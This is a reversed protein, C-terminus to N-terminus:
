GESVQIALEELAVRVEEYVEVEQGPVEFSVALAYRAEADPDKSWGKHGRVAICFTEPLQHLKLIAWDKQVTGNGRAFDRISGHGDQAGLTWTIGDDNRSKTKENNADEGGAGVISQTQDSEKIARVEFDGMSEGRRNTIWDLWVSLYRKPTRRTRRPEAAYSLTVEVHVDFDNGAARVAAPVPVQLIDCYGAQLSQVGSTILTTRHASNRTARERDPIGFGIRSMVARVQAALSQELADDISQPPVVAGKKKARRKAAAVKDRLNQNKKKERRYDELLALAWTPWRASQVILARYLLSPEDPLVSALHAAIHTVKPAAFSTGVTDRDIAPGSSLTSRILEPFCVGALAPTGIRVSGGISYVFDGGFEVVEPKIVGWIGPGSRSFSSPGGRQVVFSQWGGAHFAEYGVSGVTLAQLSQAPNAVRSSPEGLYDPYLRGVALHQAIGTKPAAEARPINGATQIVLVDHQSSLADIEAAWASMHILRCPSSANVSQNFLRTSRSGGRLRLIASRTALAPFLREPMNCGADLVRANQIWCPLKHQGKRPITEGFLVAGAVRTGHGSPGVMDAVSSDGPLLSFSSAQDVAHSLWLHKEQIGSDIVGVAPANEDPPALELQAREMEGLGAEHQPLAIDDPEVLEFLFPYNQVFDKLARGSLRVRMSFSDSLSDAAQAEEYIKLVEGEYGKILKGVQSTRQDKLEDWAMYVQDRKKSWAALKAQYKSDRAARQADTDDGRREPPEPKKPIEGSGACEIGVDVIYDQDDRIKPWDELLWPCIRQIRQRTSEPFLQYVSAVVASGLVETAFDRIKRMLLALDLESSAVIVFGDEEESVIEFGLQSRLQDLDLGPDIQLLLPVGAALAPLGQREREEQQQKWNLLATDAAGSMAASHAARDTKNQRTQESTKGGGALKARGKTRSVFRLHPFSQSDV